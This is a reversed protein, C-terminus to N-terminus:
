SVATLHYIKELLRQKLTDDRLDRALSYFSYHYKILHSDVLQNRGTDPELAVVQRLDLRVRSADSTIVVPRFDRPELIRGSVDKRHEM